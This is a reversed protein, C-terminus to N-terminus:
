PGMNIREYDEQLNQRTRHLSQESRCRCGRDFCRRLEYAVQIMLNTLNVTFILLFLTVCIQSGVIKYFAVSGIEVKKEYVILVVFGYNILSLHYM